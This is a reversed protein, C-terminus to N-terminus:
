PVSQSLLLTKAYEDIININSLPLDFIPKQEITPTNAQTPLPLPLLLSILCEPQNICKINNTHRVLLQNITTM